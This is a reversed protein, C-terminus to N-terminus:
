SKSSSTQQKDERTDYHDDTAYAYSLSITQIDSLPEHCKNTITLYVHKIANSDSVKRHKHLSFVENDCFKDWKVNRM